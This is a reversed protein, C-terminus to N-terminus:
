KRLRELLNEIESIVQLRGARVLDEEDIQIKNKCKYCVIEVM